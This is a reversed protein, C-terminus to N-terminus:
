CMASLNKWKNFGAVLSADPKQMFILMTNNVSYHHFRSMVRLYEAYRDSAFLDKIGQEIGETIEKLRDKPTNQTNEPQGPNEIGAFPNVEQEPM